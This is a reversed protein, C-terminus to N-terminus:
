ILFFLSVAIVFQGIYYLAHNIIIYIPKDFNPAFYTNNLILDSLAFSVLGFAMMTVTINQWGLQVAGSFYIAVDFFLVLAYLAVYPKMKHYKVLGFNEFLLTIVMLILAVVLPIIWYLVNNSFDFFTVFLGVFYFVHGLLFVIFGLVTFLFEHKTIIFKLDLFIDGFLGLILGIIIYLGFMTHPNSSCKWAVLATIIFMLSVFGKYIVAKVRQGKGRYVLFITLLIIGITLPILWYFM